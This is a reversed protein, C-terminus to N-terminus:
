WRHTPLVASWITGGWGVLRDLDVTALVELRGEYIAGSKTGGSVNAFMDDFSDAGIVIGKDALKDRLENWSGTLSDRQWVDPEAALVSPVPLFGTWLLAWRAKCLLRLM